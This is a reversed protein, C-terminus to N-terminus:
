SRRGRSLSSLMKEWEAVVAAKQKASFLASSREKLTKMLADRTTSRQTIQVALSAYDSISDAIFMSSNVDLKRILGLVTSPTTQFSPLSIIPMGTELVEAAAQADMGVPFSDLVVSCHRIYKRYVDGGSGSSTPHPLLLLRRAVSHVHTVDSCECCLKCIKKSPSVICDRQTVYGHMEPFHKLIGTARDVKNTHCDLKKIHYYVSRRLKEFWLREGANYLIVVFGIPDKLLISAITRIFVTSYVKIPHPLLYVHKDMMDITGVPLALSDYLSSFPDKDPKMVGGGSSIDDPQPSFMVPLEDLQLVHEKSTFHFPCKEHYLRPFQCKPDHVEYLASSIFYDIHKFRQSIPHGHFVAQTTALRLNAFSITQRDLGLEPYVLVDLDLAAVSKASTQFVVPNTALQWKCKEEDIPGSPLSSDNESGLWSWIVNPSGKFKQQVNGLSSVDDGVAMIGERGFMSQPCCVCLLHVDFISQNLNLIIDVLMNGVPHDYFFRSLFGVKIKTGDINEESPTRHKPPPEPIFSSAVGSHECMEQVAAGRELLSGGSPVVASSPALAKVIEQLEFTYGVSSAPPTDFMKREDAMLFYREQLTTLFENTYEHKHSGFESLSNGETLFSGNFEQELIDEYSVDILPFIMQQLSDIQKLQDRRYSNFEDNTGFIAPTAMMNRQYLCGIDGVEAKMLKVQEPSCLDKVKSTSIDGRLTKSLCQVRSVRALFHNQSSSFSGYDNWFFSLRIHSESLDNQFMRIGTRRMVKKNRSNAYKKLIDFSSRPMDNLHFVVREGSVLVSRRCYDDTDYKHTKSGIDSDKNCTSLTTDLSALFTAMHSTHSRLADVVKTNRSEVEARSKGHHNVDKPVTDKKHSCTGRSSCSDEVITNVYRMINTMGWKNGLFELESVSLWFAPHKRYHAMILSIWDNVQGSEVGDIVEGVHDQMVEFTEHQLIDVCTELSTSSRAVDGDGADEDKIDPGSTTMLTPIRSQSQGFQEVSEVAVEVTWEENDDVSFDHTHANSDM